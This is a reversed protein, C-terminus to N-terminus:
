DKHNSEHMILANTTDVITEGGAMVRIRKPEAEMEVLYTPFEVFGPAPGTLLSQEDM